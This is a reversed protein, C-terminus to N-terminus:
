SPKYLVVQPTARQQELGARWEDVCKLCLSPQVLLRRLVRDPASGGGGGQRGSSSGAMVRWRSPLM